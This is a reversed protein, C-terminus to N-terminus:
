GSIRRIEMELLKLFDGLGAAVDELRAVTTKLEAASGDRFLLSKATRLCWPRPGTDDRGTDEAARRRFTRVAAAGECAADRLKWLWRRLWWNRIHVGEAADVVSRIMTVLADLREVHNEMGAHEELTGVAASITRSVVDGVAASVIHQGVATPLTHGGVADIKRKRSM